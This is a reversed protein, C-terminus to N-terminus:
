EFIRIVVESLKFKLNIARHKGRWMKVFFVCLIKNNM